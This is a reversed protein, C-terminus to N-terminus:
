IMNQERIVAKLTDKKNDSIFPCADILPILSIKPKQYSLMWEVVDALEFRNKIVIPNTNKDRKVSLMYDRFKFGNGGVKDSLQIWLNPVNYSDAVILGHLSSSIICECQCVQEPIRKWDGYNGMDIILVDKPYKYYLEQIIPNNRDDVHPVIGVKYRVSRKCPVFLSTLLAPDGYVEPCQVGIALLRNRTM